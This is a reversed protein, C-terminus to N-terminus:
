RTDSEFFKNIIDLMAPFGKASFYPVTTKIKGTSNIKKTIFYSARNINEVQMHGLRIKNLLWEKIESYTAQKVGLGTEQTEAYDRNTGIQATYGNALQEVKHTISESLSGTVFKKGDILAQKAESQGFLASQLLMQQMTLHKARADIEIQEPLKKIDEM